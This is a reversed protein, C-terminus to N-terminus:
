APSIARLTALRKKLWHSNWCQMTTQRLIRKVAERTIKIKHGPMFVPHGDGIEVLTEASMLMPWLCFLRIRPETIPILLTFAMSDSLHSWAKQVMRTIVRNRSNSPSGPAFLAEPHVFGESNLWDLPLFCVKRESDEGVDKVINTIQLALGFSVALKRMNAHRTANIWPSQVYFLDCLMNGVVGAVFYCYLDLDAENEITLWQGQRSEQRLAFRAMGGCMEFVCESIPKQVKAPFEAYLRVVWHCHASLFENNDTSRAWSAPLAEMFARSASDQNVTTTAFIQAFLGLLREKESAPMDPCDEVTDAIRCFLYALLIPRRLRKQPLVQINLAFTRSVKQLMFSAYQWPKSCTNSDLDIGFRSKEESLM